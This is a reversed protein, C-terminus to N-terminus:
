GPAVAADINARDQKSWLGALYFCPLAITSLALGVLVAATYPEAFGAQRFQDIAWGAGTVGVGMGICNLCLIYFGTVTARSEASALEQVTSFTPGYFAALQFVGIGLGINFILSGPEVLRYAVSLPMLILMMWFLMMPRGTKMHRQWWDGLAGGFLNGAIGAVVTVYGSLRAIEGKEFGREIVFWLQDFQAAGIAFHLAVGGCITAVLARSRRLAVILQKIQGSFGIGNGPQRVPIKRPEHTTLMLLSLLLGLAGLAYFCNRWGIAPGLYGALLLGAGTGIPVGMYYVAAVMGMQARSFRDALLSMASPTLASEGIGILARPIALSVFGRAAGSAATLISWTAIAAAILKPRNSLDALMGMFLGAVAYFLLFVLGTLLGYETDTLNLEPKLYNAFSALLNRDVFNLTNIVTLLLLLGYPAPGIHHDSKGNTKNIQEEGMDKDGKSIKIASANLGPDALRDVGMKLKRDAFIPALHASIGRFHIPSTEVM